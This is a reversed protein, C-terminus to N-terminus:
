KIPVPELSKNLYATQSSISSTPQILDTFLVNYVAKNYPRPGGFLYDYMDSGKAPYIRIYNGRRQYEALTERIYERYRCNAARKMPEILGQLDAPCDVSLKDLLAQLQVSPTDSTQAQNISTGQIGGQNPRNKGVLVSQKQSGHMMGKMRHKIKNMSERKRDFKKIGILNFTDVALTSKINMDLPADTAMSPSINVEILWPKLDSDILIDFGYLEYCNTRHCGYKKMNAQIYSEGCLLTKIIVDYIRSWLLNM